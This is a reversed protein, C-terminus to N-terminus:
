KRIELVRVVGTTGATKDFEPIYEIAVPVNLKGCALEVSGADNGRIEVTQPDKIGLVIAGNQTLVHLRAPGNLCEMQVLSGEVSTRLEQRAAATVTKGPEEARKQRPPATPNELQDLFELMQDAATRDSASQAYQKAKVASSRAEPMAKLQQYSYALTLFVPAAQEASIRKLQALESIAAGYHGMNYLTLGLLYRADTLTPDLRVANTLADVLPKRDEATGQLLKAYSFYVNADRPNLAVAKAYSQRAANYDGKEWAANGIAQHVEWSKPFDAELRQYAAIAEDKNTTRRLLLALTLRLDVDSAPEAVPKEATKELKLNMAVVNVRGRKLYAQLDKFLGNLDKGYVERVADAASAGKVIAGVFAGFKPRYDDGLYLMHTLLWSEAYFIGARQKENYEPSDHQVATLVELPMWKSNMLELVRGPFPAGVLLQDGKQQIMCNVDAFGENLWVPLNLKSHKVLLHTYEHAAVPFVDDGVNSMVIYDRDHDPLYYAAAFSNARYPKYEKESSFAILRVPLPDQLFNPFRALAVGRVQEFYTLIDRARREGSSTYLEFSQSKVKIWEGSFLPLGVLFLVFVRM